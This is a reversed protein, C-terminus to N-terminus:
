GRGLTSLSTAGQAALKEERELKMELQRPDERTLEGSADDYFMIGRGFPRQPLKSKISPRLELITPDGKDPTIEITITVSGKLGTQRCAEAVLSLEEGAYELAAGGRIQSLLHLISQGM